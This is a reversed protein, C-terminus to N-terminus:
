WRRACKRVYVFFHGGFPNAALTTQVLAALGDFGTRMGAHGAMIRVRTHAPLGIM